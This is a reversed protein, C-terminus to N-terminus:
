IRVHIFIKIYKLMNLLKKLKMLFKTVSIINLKLNKIRYPKDKNDTTCTDLVYPM